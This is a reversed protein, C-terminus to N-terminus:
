NQAVAILARKNKAARVYVAIGSAFLGLDLIMSLIFGPGSTWLGLGVKPSGDLLLPLGPNVILDLGWHSLVTLGIVSSARSDRYFLYSIAAALVSWVVSMFLGHSWPIVGPSTVQLGQRLNTTTISQKEIGAAQFGYFLLDPVESAVLLVWLPVKPVLPKAALGIGLHGPGM